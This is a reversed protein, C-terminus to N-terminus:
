SSAFLAVSRLALPKSLCFPPSKEALIHDGDSITIENTIGPKWKNFCEIKELSKAEALLVDKTKAIVSINRARKAFLPTVALYFYLREPELNSVRLVNRFGQSLKNLENILISPWKKM